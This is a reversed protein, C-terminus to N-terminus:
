RKSFLSLKEQLKGLENTLQTFKDKEKQVVAAPARHIFSENKLKNEVFAIEKKLKDIETQLRKRETEILETPMPIYVDIDDVIATSVTKPLSVQETIQLESIPVLTKIYHAYQHLLNRKAANNSQILVESKMAPPINMESRINRISVVVRMLIDMHTEAAADVLNMDYRCWDAIMISETEKKIPLQQWIEETIFPMFPHLLRLTNDFVYIAVSLATNKEENTGRLRPKILELYWDCYEHWIFQYLAHAAKDFEYDTLGEDVKKATTNLRSRIWRDALSLKDMESKTNRIESKEDLNMLVLRSANWIKNAFNRYGEIREESLNINRGQAALACLTFRVADTGQQEMVELPDIANGLSKSMKRGTADRVLAHIYVDRFPVDNRFKLGMIIMRAVWFFIIDYATVLVSTPYFVKLDKTEEPWGLTSFPWLASSFWTDLIDPDQTILGSGCHVCVTPDTRTVTENGCTDCYWVPIRHGWWLQRSICWDRVNEMWHYYTTTWSEPYFRIRGQKVAAIAPEALPRMKVFWQLSLYPEITTHCRYCHGVQHLYDETKELLGEAKLDEVVKKRAAYRDLGAYQVGNDNIMGTTTFVNIQLLRHKLGVQFDNPDHAPTIKLAGTGFKPDVYDDAIIPIPRKLLPLIATKGILDQYREDNPHVAVATDGLMTEPRTTAVTIFRNTGHVPYKIYYLYGKTEKHEVEDDSLATHCRPCWNIIYNGRYILGEEYLRVFVERVARSLGEDMTFRTRSWDCSCGLKKLQNIITGGYQEKWEWALKLFEERGIDQRSKGQEKLKREIVNHTAISAHDTGPLWLTNFGQMRKWRILVDQLTNNFAHGIHLIGTINPPPIVIVYPPKDSHEDAHFYGKDVWFQYWKAETSKPDYKTTLNAPQAM